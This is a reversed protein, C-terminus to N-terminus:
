CRRGNLNTFWKGDDKLLICSIALFTMRGLTLQGTGVWLIKERLWSYWRPHRTLRNFAPLGTLSDIYIIAGFCRSYRDEGDTLDVCVLLLVVNGM